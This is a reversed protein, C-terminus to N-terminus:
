PEPVGTMSWSGSCTWEGYPASPCLCLCAGDLPKRKGLSAPTEAKESFAAGDGSPEINAGSVHKTYQKKETDFPPKMGFSTNVSCDIPETNGPCDCSQKFSYTLGSLSITAYYAKYARADMDTEYVFNMTHVGLSGAVASEDATGSANVDATKYTWNMTGNKLKFGRTLPSYSATGKSGSSGGGPAFAVPEYAIGNGNLTKVAGDPDQCSIGIGFIGPGCPVDTAWLMPPEGQPSFPQSSTDGASFILVLEEIRENKVERCFTKSPFLSWDEPTQWVGGKKVIAQVKAGRTLTWDEIAYATDGTVTAGESTKVKEEVLKFNLGNLFAVSRVNADNFSFHHYRTAFSPIDAKIVYPTGSASVDTDTISEGPPQLGNGVFPTKKVDDWKKFSIEQTDLPGQNWAMLAFKPWTTKLDTKRKSLARDIAHIEDETQTFDWIDMIIKGAAANMNALFLPFLYLGYGFRTDGSFTLAENTRGLYFDLYAQDNKDGPDIESFIVHGAWQATSEMLTLYAAKPQATKTNHQIAHMLEHIVGFLMKDKPLSRNILIYVPAADTTDDIIGPPRRVTLGKNSAGLDALIIDLRGDEGNYSFGDDSMPTRAMYTALKSWAAQAGELLEVIKQASPKDTTVDKKLYWVRIHTGDVSEWNDSKPCPNDFLPWHPNCAQDLPNANGVSQSTRTTSSAVGAVTNYWSGQYMPPLFFSGLIDKATQSLGPSMAYAERLVGVYDIFSDDGKYQAPLRADNFAAYVKYLLATETGITGKNLAGAILAFSSPMGTNYIVNMCSTGANDPSVTPTTCIDNIGATLSLPVSFTGASITIPQSTSGNLVYSLSSVEPAATGTLTYSGSTTYGASTVVVPTYAVPYCFGGITASTSDLATTCITNAGPRITLPVSFTGGAITIANSDSNNLRYSLSAVEPAATGTFTYSSYASKEGSTVGMPVWQVDFCSNSILVNAADFSKICISNVGAQLTVVPGTFLSIGGLNQLPINQYAGDNLSYSLAKVSPSSAMVMGSLLYSQSQSAPISTVTVPDYVVVTCFDGMLSGAVDTARTCIKNSGATLTLIASFANGAMVLPQSTGDNLSYTLSAVEPTAIGSFQYFSLNATNASTIMLPTEGSFIRLGGIKQLTYIVESIGIKGDRNADADPNIPWGTNDMHNTIQLAMVVDALDLKGDGNIDGPIQAGGASILSGWFLIACFLLVIITNKIM